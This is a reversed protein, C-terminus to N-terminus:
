RLPGINDRAAEHVANVLTNFSGAAVEALSLVVGLILLDAYTPWAADLVPRLFANLATLILGSDLPVWKYDTIAERIPVSTVETGRLCVMRGFEGKQVLSM